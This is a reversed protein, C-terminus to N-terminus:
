QSRAKEFMNKLVDMPYLSELAPEDQVKEQFRQFLSFADSGRGARLLCIAANLTARHGSEKDMEKKLLKFAPGYQGLNMLAIGLGEAANEVNKDLKLARKLAVAASCYLGLELFNLGLNALPIAELQAAFIAKKCCALAAEAKNRPNVCMSVNNWLAPSNPMGKYARRYLKLANENRQMEQEIAAALLYSQYDIPDRTFAINFQEYASQYAGQSLFIKGIKRHLMANAPHKQLAEKIVAQIAQNDKLAEFVNLQDIVTEVRYDADSANDYADIADDYKKLKFLNQGQLHYVEWIRGDRNKLITNIINLSNQFRGLQYLCKAIELQHRLNHTDIQAAAQFCSLAEEIYGKTRLVCGKLSLAEANNPSRRIIQNVINLCMDYQALVYFRHALWESPRNDLLRVTKLM